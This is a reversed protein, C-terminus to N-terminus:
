KFYHQMSAFSGNSLNEKISPIRTMVNEIKICRLEIQQLFHHFLSRLLTMALMLDWALISYFKSLKQLLNLGQYPRDGLPLM